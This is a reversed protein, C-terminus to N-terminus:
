SQLESTHEESRSDRRTLRAPKVLCGVDSHISWIARLAVSSLEPNRRPWRYRRWSRSVFNQAANRSTRRDLPMCGNARGGRLGFKFAKASRQTPETRCSHRDLSMRKPFAEKRRANVSYM